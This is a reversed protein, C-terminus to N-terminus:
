KKRRSNYLNHKLKQLAQELRVDRPNSSTSSLSKFGGLNQPDELDVINVDSYNQLQQIKVRYIVKKSYYSNIKEIIDQKQLSLEAMYPGEMGLYLTNETGSKETKIKIPRVKKSIEEGVITDWIGFLKSFSIIDIKGRAKILPEILNGISKFTSKQYKM